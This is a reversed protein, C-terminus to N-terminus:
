ALWKQPLQKRVPFDQSLSDSFTIADKSDTFKDKHTVQTHAAMKVQSRERETETHPPQCFGFVSPFFGLLTLWITHYSVLISLQMGILYLLFLSFSFGM